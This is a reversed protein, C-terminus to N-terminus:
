TGRGPPNWRDLHGPFNSWSLPEDKALAYLSSKKLGTLLEVAELRLLREARKVRSMQADSLTVQIPPEAPGPPRATELSGATTPTLRSEM